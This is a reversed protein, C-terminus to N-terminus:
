ENIYNEELDVTFKAGTEEDILDYVMEGAGEKIWESLQKAADLPDNGSIANFTLSITYTKM